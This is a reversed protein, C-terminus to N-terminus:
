YEYLPPVGYLRQLFRFQEVPDPPLHELVNVWETSYPFLDFADYNTFLHYPRRRPSLLSEAGIADQAIARLDIPKFNLVPPAFVPRDISPDLETATAMVRERYALGRSTEKGRRRNGPGDHYALVADSWTRFMKKMMALYQAGAMINERPDFPDKVGLMRATGPMLQMLGQAGKPSVARPDGGSEYRIVAYILAEPVGYKHSAEAVMTGYRKRLARYWSPQNKEM